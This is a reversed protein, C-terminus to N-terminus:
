VKMQLFRSTVTLWSSTLLVAMFVLQEVRTFDALVETMQAAVVVRDGSEKKLYFSYPGGKVGKCLTDIYVLALEGLTSKKREM